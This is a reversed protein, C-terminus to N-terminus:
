RLSQAERRLVVWNERWDMAAALSNLLPWGYISAHETYREFGRKMDAPDVPQTPQRGEAEYRARKAAANRLMIELPPVVVLVPDRPAIVEAVAEGSLCMMVILGPRNKLEAKIVEAHKMRLTLKDARDWTKWWLREEPWGMKARIIDDGDLVRLGGLHRDKVGRVFWTKGAGSPALILTGYEARM